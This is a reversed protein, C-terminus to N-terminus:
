ILVDQIKKEVTVITDNHMGGHPVLLIRTIEFGLTKGIGGSNWGFSIIKGGPKVCKAVAKKWLSWTQSSTDLSTVPIDLENYCEMLQRPSYIPDYFVGDVKKSEFMKLFELADLHYKAKTNPNIDNTIEAVDQDRAFPDIWLGLTKEENILKRIPAINFTIKNPMAWIREFKIMNMGMFCRGKVDVQNENSVLTM